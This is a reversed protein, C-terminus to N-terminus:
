VYNQEQDGGLGFGRLALYVKNGGHTVVYCPKWADEDSYHYVLKNFNMELQSLWFHACSGRPLTVTQSTSPSLCGM